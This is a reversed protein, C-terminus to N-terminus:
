CVKSFCVFQYFLCNIPFVTRCLFLGPHRYDLFLHKNHINVSECNVLYTLRRLWAFVFNPQSNWCQCCFLFSWKQWMVIYQIYRAAWSSHREAPKLMCIWAWKKRHVSLHKFSHNFPATFYTWQGLKPTRDANMLLDSCALNYNILRHAATVIQAVRILMCVSM